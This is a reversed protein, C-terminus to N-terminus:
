KFVALCENAFDHAANQPELATSYKSEMWLQMYMVQSHELQAAPQLTTALSTSPTAQSTWM